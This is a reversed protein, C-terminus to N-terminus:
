ISLLEPVLTTKSPTFNLELIDEISPVNEFLQEELVNAWTEFYLIVDVKQNYQLSQRKLPDLKVLVSKDTLREIHQLDVTTLGKQLMQSILLDMPLGSTPCYDNAQEHWDGRGQMAFQHITAKSFSTLQQALHGCNCAGMHGWQYQTSQRLQEAAKRIADILTLNPFAM